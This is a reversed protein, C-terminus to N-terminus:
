FFGIRFKAHLYGTIFDYAKGVIEKPFVNRIYSGLYDVIIYGDDDETLLEISKEAALANVRDNASLGSNKNLTRILNLYKILEEGVVVRPYNAIKSELAYARSLAPGYIENEDGVM